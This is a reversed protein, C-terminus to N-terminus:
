HEGTDPCVFRIQVSSLVDPYCRYHYQNDCFRLLHLFMDPVRALNANSKFFHYSVSSPTILLMFLRSSCYKSVQMYVRFIIILAYRQLYHLGLQRTENAEDLTSDPNNASLLCQVMDERIDGINRCKDIAEDM